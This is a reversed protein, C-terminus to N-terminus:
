ACLLLFLSVITLGIGLMTCAFPVQSRLDQPGGSWGGKADTLPYRNMPFCNLRDTM